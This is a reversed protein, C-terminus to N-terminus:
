SFNKSPSFYGVIFYRSKSYVTTQYHVQYVAYILTTLRNEVERPMNTWKRWGRSRWNKQMVVCLSIMENPGCYFSQILNNGCRSKERKKQWLMQNILIRRKIRISITFLPKLFQICKVCVVMGRVFLTLSSRKEMNKENYSHTHVLCFVQEVFVDSIVFCGTLPPFLCVASCNLTTRHLPLWKRGYLIFPLHIM